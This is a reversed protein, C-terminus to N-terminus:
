LNPFLTDEKSRNACTLLIPHFAEGRYQEELSLLSEYLPIGAKLLQALQSTIAILM